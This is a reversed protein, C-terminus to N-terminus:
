LQRPFPLDKRFIVGEPTQDVLKQLAPDATTAGAEGAKKALGGEVAVRAQNAWNKAKDCSFASIGLLAVIPFYSKM